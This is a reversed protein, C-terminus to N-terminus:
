AFMDSSFESAYVYVTDGEHLKYYNEFQIDKVAGIILLTALPQPVSVVKQHLISEFRIIIETEEKYLKEWRQKSNKNVMKSTAYIFDNLSPLLDKNKLEKFIENVKDENDVPYYKVLLDCLFDMTESSAKHHKLQSSREKFYSVLPDSCILSCIWKDLYCDINTNREEMLSVLENIKAESDLPNLKEIHHKLIDRYM